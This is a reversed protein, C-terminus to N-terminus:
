TLSQLQLTVVNYHDNADTSTNALAAITVKHPGPPLRLVLFTSPFTQHTSAANAFFQSIGRITGDVAISLGIATSPTASFGSGSVILLVPGAVNSQFNGNVPLPGQINQLVQQGQLNTLANHVQKSLVHVNKLERKVNTLQKSLEKNIQAINQPTDVRM